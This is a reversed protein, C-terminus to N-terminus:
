LSSNFNTGRGSAVNRLSAQEENQDGGHWHEHQLLPASEGENRQTM